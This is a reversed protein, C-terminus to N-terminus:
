GASTSSPPPSAAQPVSSPVAQAPTSWPSSARASTPWTVMRAQIAAPRRAPTEPCRPTSRLPQRLLRQHPLGPATGGWPPGGEAGGPTLYHTEVLVDKLEGGYAGANMVIGGGLLWPYRRRVGLRDPRAAACLGGPSGPQHWRRLGITTEDLLELQTLGRTTKLVFCDM